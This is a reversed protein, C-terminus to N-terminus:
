IIHTSFQNRPVCVILMWNPSFIPHSLKACPTQVTRGRGGAPRVAHRPNQINTRVVRDSLPWFGLLPPLQELWLPNWPLRRDIVRPAAWVQSQSGQEVNSPAKQKSCLSLTSSTWWKATCGIWGMPPPYPYCDLLAAMVVVNQSARAFAPCQRGERSITSAVDSTRARTTALNVM